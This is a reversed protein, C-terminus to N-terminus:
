RARGSIAALETRSWSLVRAIAKRKGQSANTVLENRLRELAQRDRPEYSWLQDSLRSWWSRSGPGFKELVKLAVFGVVGAAAGRALGWAHPALAFALALFIISYTRAAISRPSPARYRICEVTDLISDLERLKHQVSTTKM